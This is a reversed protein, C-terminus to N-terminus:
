LSNLLVNEFKLEGNVESLIIEEKPNILVPMRLSMNNLKIYRQEGISPFYCNKNNKLILGRTMGGNTLHFIELKKEIDQLKCIQIDSSIDEVSLILVFNDEFVKGKKVFESPIKELQEKKLISKHIIVYEVEIAKLAKVNERNLQKTYKKLFDIQDPPFYATNGNVIREGTFTLWNSYASEKGYNPIQVPFHLTAKDNLFEFKKGDKFYNIVNSRETYEKTSLNEIFLLFVVVCFLILGKNKSFKKYIELFGISIFLTFPIYFLFEFRTPARIGKFFPFFDYLFLYPLPISMERFNKWGQFYPGFTLIFSSILILLFSSYFVKNKNINKKFTLLFILFLVIPVINLFLTHEEYNFENNEPNRPSRVNELFQVFGGYLFSNKDSALYDPIRASFYTNGEISRIAGEKESFNVLPFYFYLLLPLFMLFILSYKGLSILYKFVLNLDKFKQFFFPLFFVPLLVISFIFFYSFSFANLTFFLYFLFSNKLNPTKFFKYAFLFVLPLFFKSLLEFHLPFRAYTLPNFAYVIGGVISAYNNKLFYRVFYFASTFSFVFTLFAVFNVSIVLDNTLLFIPTFILSTILRLDSYAHVYPQPYFEFGKFFEIQDFIKGSVIANQNYWLTTGGLPYDGFDSYFYPINIVFPWTFIATFFFGSLLILFFKFVRTRFIRSEM